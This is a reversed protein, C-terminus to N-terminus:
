SHTVHDGPGGCGDSLNWVETVQEGTFNYKQILLKALGGYVYWRWCRCCCPGQEDSNAMAYDYAAQQELTLEADYNSKLKKALGVEIDYPDPPIEPINAYKLLGQIQEVYRHMDMASCCSGRLRATDPLVAISDNFGASCSSNGARALQEFKAALAANVLQGPRAWQGFTIRFLGIMVVLTVLAAGVTYTIILRDTM